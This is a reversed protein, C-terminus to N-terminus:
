EDPVIQGIDPEGIRRKALALLYSTLTDLFIYCQLHAMIAEGNKGDRANTTVQQLPSFQWIM